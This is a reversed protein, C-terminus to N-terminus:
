EKLIVVKGKIKDGQRDDFYYFYTAQPLEKGNQNVGNWDNQYNSIEYVVSGWQNFIVLRNDTTIYDLFSSRSM